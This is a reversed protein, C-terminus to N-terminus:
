ITDSKQKRALFSGAHQESQREFRPFPKTAARRRSMENAERVISVLNPM